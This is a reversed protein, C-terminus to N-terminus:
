KDLFSKDKNERNKTKLYSSNILKLTLLVIKYQQRKPASAKNTVKAIDSSQNNGHRTSSKTQIHKAATRQKFLAVFQLRCKLMQKLSRIM